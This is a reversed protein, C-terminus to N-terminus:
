RLDGSDVDSFASPPRAVIYVSVPGVWPGTPMAPWGGRAPSGSRRRRGPLLAAIGVLVLAGVVPLGYKLITGGATGLVDLPEVDDLSRKPSPPQATTNAPGTTEASTGDGVRGTIEAQLNKVFQSLLKSSVDAIVGRGFQAVRGSLDLETDVEVETGAGQSKLAATITANFNGQGGIDKGSASIVARYRDEDAELFRATGRYQALVPGVKIKVGGQYEDGVVDTIVAGPLCPAVQELDTLTQWTEDIALPVTFSHTFQM